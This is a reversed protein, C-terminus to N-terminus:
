KKPVLQVELDKIETGRKVKLSIKEDARYEALLDSLNRMQGLEEGEIELIIDGELLIGKAPSDIKVGSSPAVMAGKTENIEPNLIETLDYFRVGLYPRNWEQGQVVNKMTAVLHDMPVVLGQTDYVFGSIRGDLSIIPSGIFDERVDDDLAIFKYFIESSRLLDTASNLEVYNLNKVNVDFVEGDRGLVFMAQGDVLNERLNFEAVPLNNATIKLYASGTEEDVVVSNTKYVKQDNTVIVYSGKESNVVQDNTIIWGDNTVILGRGLYDSPLLSTNVLPSFKKDAYVSVVIPEVRKIIELNSLDREHLSKKTNQTSVLEDIKQSLDSYSKFNLYSDPLLFGNLWLEGVVGSLFGVVVVIILISIFSTRTKKM